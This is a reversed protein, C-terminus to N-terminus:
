RSGSTAPCSRPTAGPGGSASGWATSPASSRTRCSTSIGRPGRSTSSPSSRSATPRSRRRSRASTARARRGTSADVRVGDVLERVDDEPAARGPARRDRRRVLRRHHAREHRDPRLRVRPLVLDRRDDGRRRHLPRLRRAAVDAARRRARRGRRPHLRSRDDYAHSVPGYKSFNDVGVVEHGRGLLEQVVYGGIFGASGTVLVKMCVREEHRAAIKQELEDPTLRRGFAFRYWRLYGPIWSAVKFNSVGQERELWITPIEAVPLRLRRAKATLEIGM